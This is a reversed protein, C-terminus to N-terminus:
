CPFLPALEGFSYVTKGDYRRGDRNFLITDIGLEEAMRLNEVSNDIFICDSAPADLRRLAIEYIRPDPKRCRVDGSVIRTPLCRTLGYFEIIYRSWESVDNSLLAYRYVGQREQAFAFFDRDITLHNEIYARMHFEPDAFGLRSLFDHSSIEGLGAKTFLNDEYILKKLRAHECEPFHEYLYPLFNGKSQKLIVGYMDFIITKM